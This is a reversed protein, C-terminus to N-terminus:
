RAAPEAEFDGGAPATVGPYLRRLAEQLEQVPMDDRPGRENLYEMHRRGGADFPHFISDARGDFELPRVGFKACLAVNFAPTAKVWRDEPRLETYGHYYFVDTGM